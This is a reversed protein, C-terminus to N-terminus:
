RQEESANESDEIYKSIIAYFEEIFNELRNQYRGIELIIKNYAIVAPITVILGLATAFLAEAIGPAVSALNMNAEGAIVGMIGWVTGFLGVFPATSGVTGLFSVHRELKEIEKGSAVHMMRFIRDKLSISMELSKGAKSTSNEWERMGALFVTVMPDKKAKAIRAYLNELSSCSWFAEEFKAARKKLTALASFKVFIITWSWVSCLILLIVVFKVTLSANMFLGYMSMDHVVTAAINATEEM